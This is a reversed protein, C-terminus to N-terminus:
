RVFLAVTSAPPHRVLHRRSGSRRLRNGRRRSTSTCTVFTNRTCSRSLRRRTATCCPRTRVSPTPRRLSPHPCCPPAPPLTRRPSCSHQPPQTQLRTRRYTLARAANAIHTRTDRHTHTIRKRFVFFPAPLTVFGYSSFVSREFNLKFIRVNKRQLIELM